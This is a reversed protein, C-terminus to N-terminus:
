TILVMIEHAQENAVMFGVIANQTCNNEIPILCTKEHMLMRQTVLSTNFVSVSPIGPSGAFTLARFLCAQDSNNCLYLSFMAFKLRIEPVIKNQNKVVRERRVRIENM